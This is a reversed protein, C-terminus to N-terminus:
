LNEEGFQNAGRHFECYRAASGNAARPAGQWDGGHVSNRKGKLVGLLLEELRKAKTLPYLQRSNAQQSPFNTGASSAISRNEVKGM